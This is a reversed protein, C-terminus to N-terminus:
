QAQQPEQLIEAAEAIVTSTERPDITEGQYPAGHIQAIKFVSLMEESDLIRQYKELLTQARRLIAETESLRLEVGTPHEPESM